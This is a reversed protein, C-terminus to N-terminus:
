SFALLQLTLPAYAIWVVLKSWLPKDGAENDM